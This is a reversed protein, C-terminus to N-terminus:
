RMRCGTRRSILAGVKTRVPRTPANGHGPMCGLRLRDAVSRPSRGSLWPRLRPPDRSSTHRTRRGRVRMHLGPAGHDCLPQGGGISPPGHRAIGAATSQHQDLGLGPTVEWGVRGSPIGAATSRRAGVRQMVAETARQGGVGTREISRGVPGTGERGLGTRPPYPDDRRRRAIIGSTDRPSRGSVPGYAAGGPPM